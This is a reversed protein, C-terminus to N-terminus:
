LPKLWPLNKLRWESPAREQPDQDDEPNSDQGAEYPILSSSCSDPSHPGLDAVTPARALSHLAEEYTPPDIPPRASRDIQGERDEEPMDEQLGSRQLDCYVLADEESYYMCYEAPHEYYPNSQRAPCTWGTCAVHQLSMCRSQLISNVKREAAGFRDVLHHTRDHPPYSEQNWRKYQAPSECPTLRISTHGRASKINCDISVTDRPIDLRIVSGGM